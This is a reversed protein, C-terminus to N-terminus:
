RRLEKKLLGAIFFVGYTIHTLIIGLWVLPTLKKEGQVASAFALVLYVGIISSLIFKFAPYFYSLGAGALLASVFVSPALYLPKFSTESYKKAFFGRHLGFRSVQKLHPIFLPKRHHYVVVDPAELMKKGLAKIRLCVITDEGPWYREDWSVKEMIEKKVIFNCSHIDYSEFATGKKYRNALGGVMFSSLVYGSARQMPSDSPPTIGPGGVAAIDPNSLYKMANRLWNRAPYADSDIFALIEGLAYKIGINRKAGPTTDGTPILKVGKIGNPKDPLIIIEFGGYELRKCHEVCEKTFADVEKCPIIISAKM